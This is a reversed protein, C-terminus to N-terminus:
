APISATRERRSIFVALATLAFALAFSPLSSGIGVDPPSTRGVLDTWWGPGLPHLWQYLSFGAIWALVPGAKLAPASFFDEPRYSAGSLLWDALLVGFLPVFFSGLLLLFTEYNRLEITLAGLTALVSVLGVLLRQSVEPFLNQLSVASSYINAFAEDTEDVTVALLALGSALGAAAVGAPVEAPDALGRALVLLAGLLFMWTGAVFYGTATGVLAGRRNRGFRTYDAALPTWSVTIAIVLDIGLVVSTGGEGPARWLALLDAEALAWWTLYVLSALVIWVAFRRLVRRVVGVPGLLALGLAAAGCIVTWFAKGGFGLFEESLATAAAAIIILEFVAWGLCQTINLATPLYSGRRGLPARMLVMAPVRGDAGIMGALGLMLNGVLSGVVIAVLADRLSLAPVLFAGAVLVLLSVGLNGWLLTLDLASLTRLREPVPTIGWAREEDKV